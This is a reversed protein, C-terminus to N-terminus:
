GHVSNGTGLLLSEGLEKFKSVSLYSSRVKENIRDDFNRCIKNYLLIYM